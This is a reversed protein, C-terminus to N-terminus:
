NGIIDFVTLQVPDSENVLLLEGTIFKYSKLVAREKKEEDWSMPFIIDGGPVFIGKNDCQVYIHALYNSTMIFEIYTKGKKYSVGYAFGKGKLPYGREKIFNDDLLSDSIEFFCPQSNQFTTYFDTDNWKDNRSFFYTYEIGETWKFWTVGKLPLESGNCNAVEGFNCPLPIKM